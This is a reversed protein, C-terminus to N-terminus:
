ILNRRLRPTAWRRQLCWFVELRAIAGKYGSSALVIYKLILRVMSTKGSRWQVVLPTSQADNMERITHLLERCATRCSLTLYCIRVAERSGSSAGAVRKGNEDASMTGLLIWGQGGECLFTLFPKCIQHLMTHPDQQGSVFFRLTPEVVSM